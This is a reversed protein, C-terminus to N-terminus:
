PKPIIPPRHPAPKLLEAWTLAAAKARPKLSSFAEERAKIM